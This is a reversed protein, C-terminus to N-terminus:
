NVFCFCSCWLHFGPSWHQNGWHAPTATVREEGCVASPSFPPRPMLYHILHPSHSLEEAPRRLPLVSFSGNRVAERLLVWYMPPKLLSIPDKQPSLVCSEESYNWWREPVRGRRLGRPPDSFDSHLGSDTETPM